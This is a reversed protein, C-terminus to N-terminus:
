RCLIDKVGGRELIKAAEVFTKGTNLIDDVLNSNEVGGIIRESDHSRLWHYRNTCWSYDMVVLVNVGVLKLAPVVLLM